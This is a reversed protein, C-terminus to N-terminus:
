LVNDVIYMYDYNSAAEEFPFLTVLLVHQLLNRPGM